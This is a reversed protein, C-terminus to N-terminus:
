YRCMEQAENSPVRVVLLGNLVSFTALKSYLSAFRHAIIGGSTEFSM